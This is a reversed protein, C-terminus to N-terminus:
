GELTRLRITGGAMLAGTNGCSVMAGAEGSKLLELARAMSSDKKRRLAQVPKDEMTVVESAPLLRLRSHSALGQKQLLPELLGPQGVVTLDSTLQADDLALQLAAVVESPGLDGGMADVAVRGSSGTPTGM